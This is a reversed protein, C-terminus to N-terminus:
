VYVSHYIAENHKKQLKYFPYWVRDLIKLSAARVGYENSISMWITVRPQLENMKRAIDEGITHSYLNDMIQATGLKKSNHVPAAIFM